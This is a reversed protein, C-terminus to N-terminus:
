KKTMHPQLFPMVECVNAIELLQGPLNAFKFTKGKVRAFRLWNLLLAIGSSDTHTVKSFDLTVQDINNLLETGQKYLHTVTDFNILGSIKFDDNNKEITCFTM